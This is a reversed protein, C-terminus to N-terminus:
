PTAPRDAAQHEALSAAPVAGIDRRYIALALRAYGWARDPHILFSDGFSLSVIVHAARARDDAGTLSFFAPCIRPDSSGARRRAVVSGDQYIRRNDFALANAPCARAAPCTFTHGTHWVSADSQLGEFDSLMTLLDADSPSGLHTDILARLWPEVAAGRNLAGRAAELYSWARRHASQALAMADLWPGSDACGTVTDSPIAATPVGALAEILQAYSEANNLAEETSMRLMLREGSSARNIPAGSEASGRTGRGPIVASALLPLLTAANRDVDTSFRCFVIEYAQPTQGLTSATVCNSTDGPRLTHAFLQGRGELNDLMLQLRDRLLQGYGADRTHFLENVRDAVDIPQTPAQLWADFRAISTRLMARGRNMTQEAQDIQALAADALGPVPGTAWARTPDTLLRPNRGMANNIANRARAPMGPQALNLNPVVNSLVSTLNTEQSQLAATFTAQGAYTAELMPSAEMWLVLSEGYATQEEREAQQDNRSLALAEDFAARIEGLFSFYAERLRGLLPHGWPLLRHQADYIEKGRRLVARIGTQNLVRHARRSGEAIGGATAAETRAHARDAMVNLRLTNLFDIAGRISESREERLIDEPSFAFSRLPVTTEGVMWFDAAGQDKLEVMAAHVCNTDRVVDDSFRTYFPYVPHFEYRDKFWLHVTGAVEDVEFDMRDIAGFSYRFDEDQPGFFSQPVEMFGRTQGHRAVTFNRRFHESTRVFRELNENEPFDRGGGSLYWRLHRLATPKDGFEWQIATDAVERPTSTACAWSILVGSNPHDQVDRWRHSPSHNHASGETFDTTRQLAPQPLASLAPTEGVAQRQAMPRAHESQQVVHALEHAILRQGAPHQPTYQGAGFVINHGVTYALANVSHASEAARSDTHIRVGSFDRGFRPEMFRRLGGDLPRGPANLVAHVAAPAMGPGADAGAESRQVKKRAEEEEECRSCKRQISIRAEEESPKRRLKKQNEEEECHACKRQLAGAKAHAMRPVPAPEPTRMVQEAVTDAEREFRDGPENIALPEANHPSHSSDFLRLVAQNGLTRQLRSVGMASAAQTLPALAPSPTDKKISQDLTKM